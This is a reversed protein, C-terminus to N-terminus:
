ARRSLGQRGHARPPRRRIGARAQPAEALAASGADQHHRRHPSQHDRAGGGHAHRRPHHPKRDRGREPFRGARRARQAVPIRRDARVRQSDADSCRKAASTPLPAPVRPRRRTPAINARIGSRGRKADARRPWSAQLMAIEADRKLVEFRTDILHIRDFITQLKTAKDVVHVPTTVKGCDHLLGAIKLEYRDKDTLHLRRAAGTQRRNAAEALMMTLAPVRQCHGGTYPSKEDIATNILNIFSEFLEELQEILQRNTSRSPPRRPSRNSWTSTTRRLVAHDRREGTAHANICSCCASSRTRTTRADARHPVIALPLRDERRLRTGSFDFGEATYADAINVTSDPSRRTPPSWALRQARRGRRVAAIPPFPIPNGTTGGM